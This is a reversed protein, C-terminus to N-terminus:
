EDGPGTVQETAISLRTFGLQGTVDMATVVFHHPTLSDARLLVPQSRVEGVAERFAAEITAPRSDILQQDNLFMRGERDIVLELKEVEDAQNEAVVSAEPLDIKLAAQREFTTSVMFFILLLFVVDILSTINVEPEEGRQAQLKM